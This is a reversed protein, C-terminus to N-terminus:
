IRDEYVEEVKVDSERRIDDVKRNYGEPRIIVKKPKIVQISQVKHKQKNIKQYKEKKQDGDFFKVNVWKYIDQAFSRIGEAFSSETIFSETKNGLTDEDTQYQFIIVALLTFIVVRFLFLFDKIM